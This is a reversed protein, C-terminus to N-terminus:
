GSTARRSVGRRFRAARAAARGGVGADLLEQRRASEALLGLGLWVALGLFLVTGEGMMLAAALRQDDLPDVDGRGASVYTAYLPAPAWLLVNGLVTQALRWVVAFGLKHGAGFSAPAPLTELLPLWFLLGAAVFSAHELAHLGEHRLAADFLVPVHWAALLGFALPLMRWPSALARRLAGPLAALLPRLLPRTLGALLLLPAIDVLLLHQGMHAVFPGDEAYVAFPPSLAIALAALGSVFLALRLAPVPAGARALTRARVGYAAAIAALPGLTLLTELM